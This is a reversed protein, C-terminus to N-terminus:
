KVKPEDPWDQFRLLEVILRVIEFHNGSLWSSFQNLTVNPFDQLHPLVGRPTLEHLHPGPPVILQAIKESYYGGMNLHAIFECLDVASARLEAYDSSRFDVLANLRRYLAEFQPKLITPDKHERFLRLRGPEIRRTPNHQDTLHHNPCLPLLNLPLHNEANEDIHHLQPRDGGCWACRHNFEKLVADSVAKPISTRLRPM